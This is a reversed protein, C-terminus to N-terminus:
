SPATCRCCCDGSWSWVRASSACGPAWRGCCVGWGGGSTRTSTRRAPGPAGSCSRAWRCGRPGPPWHSEEEQTFLTVLPLRRPEDLQEIGWVALFPLLHDDDVAAPLLPSNSFDPRGLANWAEFFAHRWDPSKPRREMLELLFRSEPTDKLSPHTLDKRALDWKDHEIFWCAYVLHAPAYSDDARLAFHLRGTTQPHRAFCQAAADRTWEEAQTRADPAGEPPGGRELGAEARWGDVPGDPEGSDDELRRTSARLWHSAAWGGGAVVPVLGLAWRLLRRRSRRKDAGRAVTIPQERGPETGGDESKKM